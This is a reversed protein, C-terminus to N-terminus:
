VSRTRRAARARPQFTKDYQIARLLRLQKLARTKSTCKAFVRKTKKNYVRYCAEKHQKTNAPLKRLSYPM